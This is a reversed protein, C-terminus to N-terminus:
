RWAPASSIVTKSFSTDTSVPRTPPILHFYTDAMIQCNGRAQERESDEADEEVALVHDDDQQRDLQHQEGDVDVQDREGCEQAIQDSLYKGQKDQGYSRGFNGNAQSDDDDVETIAAGDGDFVDVHHLAL